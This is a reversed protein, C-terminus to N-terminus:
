DGKGGPSLAYHQYNPKIDDNLFRGKSPSNVLEEYKESEVGDYVHEIGSGKFIVHLRGTIVDYGIRDVNSSNVYQFEM